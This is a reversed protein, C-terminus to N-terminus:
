FDSHAAVVPQQKTPNTQSNQELGFVSHEMQCGKPAPLPGTWTWSM